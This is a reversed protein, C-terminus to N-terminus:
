ENDLYQIMEKLKDEYQGPLPLDRDQYEDDDLQEAPPSLIKIGKGSIGVSISHDGKYYVRCVTGYSTFYNTTYNADMLRWGMSILFKEFGTEDLFKTIKEPKLSDKGAVFGKWYSNVEEPKLAVGKHDTHIVM